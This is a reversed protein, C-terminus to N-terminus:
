KSTATGGKTDGGNLLKALKECHSRSTCAEGCWAIARHLWYLQIHMWKSIAMEVKGIRGQM